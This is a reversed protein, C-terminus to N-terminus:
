HGTRQPLKVSIAGRSYDWYQLRGSIRPTKCWLDIPGMGLVEISVSRPAPGIVMASHWACIFIDKRTPGHTQLTM